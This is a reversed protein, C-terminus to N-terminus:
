LGQGAVAPRGRRLWAICGRRYSWSYSECEVTSSVGMSQAWFYGREFDPCDKCSDAAPGILTRDDSTAEVAPSAVAKGRWQALTDKAPTATRWEVSRSRVFSGAAVGVATGVAM